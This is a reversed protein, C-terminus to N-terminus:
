SGMYEFSDNKSRYEVLGLLFLLALAPTFLGDREADQKSHSQRLEDFGVSRRRKLEQLLLTASHVITKDPHAHKSPLIM